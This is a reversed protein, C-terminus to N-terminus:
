EYFINGLLEIIEPFDTNIPFLITSIGNEILDNTMMEEIEADGSFMQAADIHQLNSIDFSDEWFDTEDLKATYTFFLPSEENLIYVDTFYLPISNSQDDWYSEYGFYRGAYWLDLYQYDEQTNRYNELYLAQEGELADYYVVDFFVDAVADTDEVAFAILTESEEIDLSLGCVLQDVEYVAQMYQEGTESSGCIMLDFAGDEAKLAQVQPLDLLADVSEFDPINQFIPTFIESQLISTLTDLMVSVFEGTTKEVSYMYDYLITRTEDMSDMEYEIRQPAGLFNFIPNSDDQLMALLTDDFVNSQFMSNNSHDLHADIVFSPFLDCTVHIDGTEHDILESATCLITGDLALCFQYKGADLDYDYFLALKNILPVFYMILEKQESALGFSDLLQEAIDEYVYLGFCIEGQRPTEEGSAALCSFTLALILALAMWKKM